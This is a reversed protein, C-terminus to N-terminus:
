LITEAPSGAAPSPASLDLGRQQSYPLELVWTDTAPDRQPRCRGDRVLRALLEYSLPILLGAALLPDRQLQARYADLDTAVVAETGDFLQDFREELSSRDDFPSTFTLFNATFEDRARRVDALWQRGWPGAYADTLWQQAATEAVLAGGHPSLIRWAERVPAALYPGIRDPRAPAPDVPHIWVEAPPRRAVRNVRGMRQLLAELPAADTFAVDFDVDLSVEAVQTSVVLGGHRDPDLTAYRRRLTGELRQRDQQRFRAHLLVASDPDDPWHDRAAQTLAAFLQQARGVTNAVVLVARGDAIAGRVRAISVPDTLDEGALRLRHRVLGAAFQPDARVDAVPAALSDRVVDLVQDALTASAIGIRGGLREWLRLAALLWGFTKPEYAHLEDLLFASNAADLLVSAHKPGLLAGRLLQYPTGVRLREHFLGTMRQRARAKRAADLDDTGDEASWALLVQAAKGHVVGIREVGCGLDGALRLVMANISALYPLVYFLRPQGPLRALAASAWALMGETKGTGTPAVLAVHGHQRAVAVQHAYPQRGIATLCGLYAAPLPMTEDLGLRGASSLHDAMTVAGQLLVATLGDSDPLTRQWRATAAKFMRRAREAPPADAPRRQAPEPARAALWDLLEDHLGLRVQGGFAEAFRDPHAGRYYRDLDRGRGQGIAGSPRLPRHHTLVGLAVWLREPEPLAATLLDVFALSLVEHREGWGTRGPKPPPFAPNALQAQFGDAVKGADHLLAAWAVLPWFRGPPMGPLWDLPGVRREVARATRLAADLHGTLPEGPKGGRGSKAWVAALPVPTM